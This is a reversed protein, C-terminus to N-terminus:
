FEILCVNNFAAGAFLMASFLSIMQGAAQHLIGGLIRLITPFLPFFALNSEWIYGFEAIHLFHRADWRSLGSLL